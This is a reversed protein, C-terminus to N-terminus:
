PLVTGEEVARHALSPTAAELKQSAVVMASISRWSAAAVGCIGSARGSCGPNRTGATEEAKLDVVAVEEGGLCSLPSCRARSAASPSKHQQAQSPVSIMTGDLRKSCHILSIEFNTQSPRGRLGSEPLHAQRVIKINAPKVPSTQSAASSFRSTAM